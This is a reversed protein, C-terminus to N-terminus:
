ALLKAQGACPYAKTNMTRSGTGLLVPVASASEVAGSLDNVPAELIDTEGPYSFGDKPRLFRVIRDGDKIIELNLAYIPIEGNNKLTISSGTLDATFSVKGCSDEIPAGLKEVEEVSVANMWFFIAAFAILAVLVLLLTAMVPSLGRRGRMKGEEM